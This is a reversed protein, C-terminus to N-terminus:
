VLKRPTLRATIEQDGRKITLDYTSPQEFLEVLQTLSFQSAPTGNIATLVDGEKVGAESAPSNELVDKVRFTHYDGETRVAMGPSAVGFPDRFARSPELIIRNHGYDLFVRFRTAIQMGINGALNQDAFAGATDETFVTVVSSLQYPGIQLSEVRGVQGKVSGGAGAAGILRITNAQAGLLGQETVFPAHLALAMSSGLDLVFRRTIPQGGLPTITASITPHAQYFEIPIEAGQGDYKFTNRDHVTITRAQYDIELVFQRIFQTGIIGDIDQGMGTSLQM